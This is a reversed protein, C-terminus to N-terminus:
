TIGHSRRASRGRRGGRQIRPNGKKQQNTAATMQQQMKQMIQQDRTLKPGLAEKDPLLDILYQLADLLHKHQSGKIKGLEEDAWQASTFENFLDQLEEDFTLWGDLMAQQLNTILEKKRGHKKIGAWPSTNKLRGPEKALKVFELLFATEHTDYIKRTVNFHQISKDIDDVLDSYAKGGLTYKAQVVHWGWPARVAMILGGKGSAAPDYALVHEQTRSYSPLTTVHKHRDLFFVSEDADLWDGYLVCNRVQLPMGEVEELITAQKEPSQYIPNDLKGFQYKRGVSPNVGEVMDKIEPNSTKPTFTCLITGGKATVRQIAEELYRYNDPMEDIWVAHAVYSQIKDKSVIAKDHSLFIIRNGNKLNHVISLANGDKEEKFDGPNLLPKIKEEWLVTKVQKGVKGSVILTLPGRGWDAWVRKCDLCRYEECDAEPLEVEEFNKSACYHCHKNNPREWYPHNEEFLWAFHRGGLTSKGSQNGAVVYKIRHVRDTLIELQKKTPRSKPKLGDFCQVIRARQKKKLAALYLKKDASV